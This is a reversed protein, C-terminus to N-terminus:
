SNNKIRDLWIDMVMNYRKANLKDRFRDSKLLNYILMKLRSPETIPLHKKREDADPYVRDLLDFEMEKVWQRVFEIDTDVKMAQRETNM